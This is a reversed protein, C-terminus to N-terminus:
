LTKIEDIKADDINTLFPTEAWPTVLLKLAAGGDTPVPTWATFIDKLLKVDNQLEDFAQKTPIFRVMNDSNGGIECTGDNKQWIYFKVNGNSDMSFTRFDGKNAIISKNFYGVVVNEGKVSTEAYIAVMDKIPVSDIGFPAANRIEQVDSKSFGLFKILRKIGSVRSDSVKGFNM